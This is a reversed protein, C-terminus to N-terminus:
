DGQTRDLLYCVPRQTQIRDQLLSTRVIFPFTVVVRFISLLDMQRDFVQGPQSQSSKWYSQESMLM